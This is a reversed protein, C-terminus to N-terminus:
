IVLDSFKLMLKIEFFESKEVRTKLMDQLAGGREEKVESSLFIWAGDYLNQDLPNPTTGPM